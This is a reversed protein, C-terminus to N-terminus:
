VIERPWEIQYDEGAVIEGPKTPLNDYPIEIGYEHACEVVEDANLNAQGLTGVIPLKIVLVYDQAEEWGM